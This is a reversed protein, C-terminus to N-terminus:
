APLLKLLAKSFTNTKNIQPRGLVSVFGNHNHITSIKTTDVGVPHKTRGLIKKLKDEFVEWNKQVTMMYGSETVGKEVVEKRWEVVNKYPYCSCKLLYSYLSILWVARQWFKHGQVCVVLDENTLTVKTLAIKNKKEVAHVIHEYNALFADRAVKTPFLMLMTTTEQDTTFVAPNVVFNYIDTVVKASMAYVVDGLFDRCKVWEHLREVNDGNVKAFSFKVNLSQGIENLYKMERTPHVVKLM